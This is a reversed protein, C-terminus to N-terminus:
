RVEVAVSSLAEVVAILREDGYKEVYVVPPQGVSIDIVVRRTSDDVIGAARLAGVLEADVM